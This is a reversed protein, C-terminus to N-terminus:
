QASSVLIIRTFADELRERDIEDRNSELVLQWIVELEKRIELPLESDILSRAQDEFSESSLLLTAGSRAALRGAEAWKGLSFYVPDLERAVTEELEEASNPGLEMSRARATQRSSVSDLLVCMRDIRRRAEDFRREELNVAVGTMLVGAEFSAEELGAAAAVHSRTASARWLEGSLPESSTESRILSALALASAGRTAEPQVWGIWLWTLAASALLVSAASAWLYSRVELRRGPAPAHEPHELQFEATRGFVEFCAECEGLHAEFSKRRRSSVRADLLSALDEDSPCGQKM